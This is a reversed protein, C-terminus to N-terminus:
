AMHTACKLASLHEILDDSLGFHTDRNEVRKTIEILQKFSLGVVYHYQM